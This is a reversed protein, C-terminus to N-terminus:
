LTKKLQCYILNFFFAVIMNDAYYKEMLFVNVAEL